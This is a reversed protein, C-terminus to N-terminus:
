HTVMIEDQLKAYISDTICDVKKLEEISSFLGNKERYRIIEEARSNGIGTLACLQEKNATNIDVLASRTVRQSRELELVEQKTPFSIKEGDKVKAALNVYERDADESFGGAALLAQEVRSGEPIEVVGPEKVAGCVFVSICIPTSESEAFAVSEQIAESVERSFLLTGAGDTGCSCLYLCVPLVKTVVFWIKKKMTGRERLVASVVLSQRM